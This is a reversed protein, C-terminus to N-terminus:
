AYPFSEQFKSLKLELDLLMPLDIDLVGVYGVNIQTVSWIFVENYFGQYSCFDPIRARYTGGNTGTKSTQASVPHTPFSLDLLHVKFFYWRFFKKKRPSFHNQFNGFFINKELFCIKLNKWNSHWKFDIKWFDIKFSMEISFFILINKEFFINKHFIEFENKEM